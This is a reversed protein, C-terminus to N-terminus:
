AEVALLHDLAEAAARQQGPLLHAYTRMTFAPNSHGLRRSVVFVDVGAKIWLSAATHRLAHWNLGALDQIGSARVIAMYDRYFIRRYQPTGHPSPFVLAQDQWITGLRLREENQAIKHRRLLTVTAASLEIVRRSNTTKPALAHFEGSVHQM